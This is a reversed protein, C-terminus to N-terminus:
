AADDPHLLAWCDSCTCGVELLRARRQLRLKDVVAMRDVHDVGLEREAALRVLEGLAAEKDGGNAAVLQHWLAANRDALSQGVDVDNAGDDCPQQVNAM